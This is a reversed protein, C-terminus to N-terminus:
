FANKILRIEQVQGNRDMLLEAVDFRVPVDLYNYRQMFVQAVKTITAQKTYSVAEAPVGYRVSSRTKVEIFCITDGDKGILDIEGMRGARFNRYIISYGHESLYRMAEQEGKSGFTRNNM